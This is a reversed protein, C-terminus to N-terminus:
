RVTCSSRGASTARASSIRRSPRCRIPSTVAGRGAGHALRSGDLRALADALLRQLADLGERHRVPRVVPRRLEEPLLFNTERADGRRLEREIRELCVLLCRRRRLYSHAADVIPLPSPKTPSVPPM